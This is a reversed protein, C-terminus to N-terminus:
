GSAPTAIQRGRARVSTERTLLLWGAIGLPYIFYGFREAPGLAFMLALGIALRWAAARTSTPPRWVLSAAVGLGAALLLTVAVAHGVPGATALLDGPTLSDAPTLHKTLGLPFLVANEVMAAPNAIIAPLM